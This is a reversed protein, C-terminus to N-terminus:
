NTVVRNRGAAKAAYLARDARAVLAELDADGSTHQAIGVSITVAVPGTRTQVPEEGVMVRIREAILEASAGGDVLLVFEEGGYRGLLDTGRLEAKIRAAVTRIVDDGTPHGFTDNVRKFHDIDVMLAAVPRGHRRAALLDREGTDFFRRRNAVGTLDDVVALEQVRAFLTARDFAAMAQAALVGVLERDADGFPEPREAVLRAVSRNGVTLPLDLVTPRDQSPEGPRVIRVASAQLVRGAIHMLATLVEQPAM